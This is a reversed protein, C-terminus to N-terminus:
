PNREVSRKRIAEDKLALELLLGDLRKEYEEPATAAKGARLADLRREVDRREQRLRALAPDAPDASSRVEGGSGLFVTRAVSGDAGDALVAHETLLRRDKEYFREV